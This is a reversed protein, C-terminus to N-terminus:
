KMLSRVTAGAHRLRSLDDKWVFGGTLSHSIYPAESSLGAEYIEVKDWDSDAEDVIVSIIGTLIGEGQESQSSEIVTTGDRRSTGWCNPAVESGQAQAMPTDASQDLTAHTPLYQAANAGENPTEHGHQGPQGTTRYSAGLGRWGSGDSAEAKKEN